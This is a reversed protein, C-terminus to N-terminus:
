FRGRLGIAIGRGPLPADDKLFSTHVLARQDLLNQGKLYTVLEQGAFNFRYSVSADLMTYGSTAQELEATKSQKFYRALTIDADFVNGEYSLTSLLRLPPTRPLEGGRRLEARIYDGQLLFRYAPLFQWVFQAELGYLNIDENTYLYVPLEDAEEHVDHGGHHEGDHGHDHEDGGHEHEFEAFLGTFRQYYYNDVRNYFANVVLGVDGSFKRFTLDLNTARETKFGNRNLVFGDEEANLTFLSGIEYSNTGIHPGFSLLEAASPARESRSLSVGINYGPTFDWVLGASLSYPNYRSNFDFIRTIDYDHHEDHGHDHEDHAHVDLMPLKVDRAKITVRETRAGLQLLVPGFHRESMWGLALMTTDSPPTFAEEGDAVFDSYKYHLSLGGKWDFLPQHMLELRGEHSKNKFTTGIEGNEIEAHQYDTYAFRSNVQRIFNNKFFLSSQLQFRDQQKDAYVEEEGEGDHEHGGHSGHGPIGYKRELRGYSLGVFGNDLLLSGGITGGKGTAATNAVRASDDHEHSAHDSHGDATKYNISDRYFGDVYVAFLDNGNVASGAILKESNVSQWESMWEARPTSSTPVREDVINVVGGIAGSGYFLTAPGRLVEIQTATSAETAVSHDPGVRSADGADLGNQTILVRPGDLGRIIPSSTVGGYFNSHVGVENKLTDGLTAAQQMKLRDGALVTVPLASETISAHIPTASIDIIEFPSPELTLQVNQLGAAPLTLHQHQHGFRRASLHLEVQNATIGSLSFRGESDTITKLNKGIVSIEANAVPRGQPDKVVGNISNALVAPASFTAAILLALASKRIM